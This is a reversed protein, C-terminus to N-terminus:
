KTLNNENSWKLQKQNKNKQKYNTKIETTQLTVYFTFVMDLIKQNWASKILSAMSNEKVKEKKM